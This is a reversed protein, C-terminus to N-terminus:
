LKFLEFLSIRKATACFHLKRNLSAFIIDKSTNTVIKKLIRFEGETEVGEAIVDYNLHRGLTLLAAVIAEKHPGRDIGSIFSRDIKIQDIPLLALSSLSSYGSGIDDISIRVGAERLATIKRAIDEFDEM